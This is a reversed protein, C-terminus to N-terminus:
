IEKWPIYYSQVIAFLQRHALAARSVCAGRTPLRSNWLRSRMPRYCHLQEDVVYLPRQKVQELVKGLLYLGTVGLSNALIFGPAEPVLVALSTYGSPPDAGFLYTIM